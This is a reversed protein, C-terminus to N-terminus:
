NGTFAAANDCNAAPNFAAFMGSPNERHTWIHLAWVGLAENRMMPRGLVTPPDASTWQDFPIAYDVGILQMSGDVQPEYMLLEPTNLDVQGDLLADNLFHYGQSGEDTQVCGQPYQNTYGAARAAEIDTWANAIQRVGDIAAMDEASLADGSHDMPAPAEPAPAEANAADTENAADGSGCAAAAFSGFLVLVMARKM